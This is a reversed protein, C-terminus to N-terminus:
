THKDSKKIQIRSESPQNSSLWPSPEKRGGQCHKNHQSEPLLSGAADPLTAALQASICHLPPADEQLGTQLSALSTGRGWPVGPESPFGKKLWKGRHREMEQNERIVKFSLLWNGSSQYPKGCSGGKKWAPPHNILYFASHEGVPFVSTTCRHAYCQAPCEPVCCPTSVCNLAPLCILSTGIM